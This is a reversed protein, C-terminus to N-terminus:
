EAVPEITFYYTGHPADPCFENEDSVPCLAEGCGFGKVAYAVTGPAFSYAKVAMPALAGEALAWTFIYRMGAAELADSLQDQLAAGGARVLAPDLQV